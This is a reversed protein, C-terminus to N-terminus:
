IALNGPTEDPSHLYEIAVPAALRRGTAELPMGTQAILTEPTPQQEFAGLAFARVAGEVVDLTYIASDGVALEVVNGASSGLRVAMVPRIYDVRDTLPAARPVVTLAALAVLALLVA